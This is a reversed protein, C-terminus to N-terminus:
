LTLEFSKALVGPLKMGGTAREGWTSDNLLLEPEADLQELEDGLLRYLSDDFRMAEIPAVIRGHEVWFTCDPRRCTPRRPTARALGAGRRSCRAAIAFRRSHSRSTTACRTSTPAIM